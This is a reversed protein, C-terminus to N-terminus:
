RDTTTDKCEVQYTMSSSHGTFTPPTWFLLVSTSTLSKVSLQEPPNPCAIVCLRAASSAVGEANAITCIYEGDDEPTVENIRLVCKEEAFSTFARDITLLTGNHSWQASASPHPKTELQCRFTVSRGALVAEDSLHTRISPPKRQKDSGDVLDERSSRERNWPTHNEYSHPPRLPAEDQQFSYSSTIQLRVHKADSKKKKNRKKEKPNPLTYSDGPRVSPAPTKSPFAAKQHRRQYEAHIAMEEEQALRGQYRDLFSGPVWGQECFHTSGPEQDRVLRALWWDSSCDLVDYLQGKHVFMIGENEKPPACDEAVIYLNLTRQSLPPTAPTSEAVSLTRRKFGLPSPAQPQSHTPSNPFASFSRPRAASSPLEFEEDSDDSFNIMAVNDDAPIPSAPPVDFSKSKPRGASLAQLLDYQGKVIDKLAKLWEQKKEASVAELLYYQDWSGVTGTGVAFRNPSDGEKEAVSLSHVKLADKFVYLGDADKEKTIILRQDLLFLQRRASNRKNREFVTFGDQLIIQGHKHINGDYGYIMSLTMADNARKPVDHTIQIAKELSAPVVNIKSATSHLERLLLKYRTARQVPEILVSDIGQRHSLQKQAEEFFTGGTHAYTWLFAESKPKNECYTVYLELSHAHDIFCKAIADLSHRAGEVAELFTEKHFTHLAKINGFILKEKGKLTEPINPSAMAAMYGDIGAELTSVYTRETDVLEDLIFKIKQEAKQVKEPSLSAIGVAEGGADSSASSLKTELPPKTSSLTDESGSSHLKETSAMEEQSQGGEESHESSFSSHRRNGKRTSRGKIVNKRQFQSARKFNSSSGSSSGQQLASETVVLAETHRRHRPSPHPSTDCGSVAVSSNNSSAGQPSSPEPMTHSRRYVRNAPRDLSTFDLSSEAGM